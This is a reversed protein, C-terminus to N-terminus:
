GIYAKVNGSFSPRYGQNAATTLSIVLEGKDDLTAVQLTGVTTDKDYGTGIRLGTFGTLDGVIDGCKLTYDDAINTSGSGRKIHMVFTVKGCAAGAEGLKFRWTYTTAHGLKGSDIGTVDDAQLLDMEGYIAGCARCVYKKGTKETSNTFDTAAYDHDAFPLEVEREYGCISCKEHKIGHVSCTSVTDTKSTDAIWTHEAEDAKYGPIPCNADSCEHWHSNDDASWADAVQHEHKMDKIVFVIHSLGMNYSGKREYKFTNVGNKLVINNGCEIDALPSLYNEIDDKDAGKKGTQPDGTMYEAYTHTKYASLNLKSGNLTLECDDAGTGDAKGSSFLKMTHATNTTDLYWNDVVGRQYIKGVAINNDGSCAYNFSFSFSQGNSNLKMYGYPDNKNASGSALMSDEVKVEVKIADCKKCTFKNYAVNDGAAEVPTAENWDHAAPIAVVKEYKCVSCVYKGEGDADCTAPNVVQLDGFSHDAEDLKIGPEDCDEGVCTHWHKTENTEWTTSAQHQHTPVTGGIEGTAGLNVFLYGQLTVRYGLKGQRVYILNEGAALNFKGLPMYKVESGDGFVSSMLNNYAVPKFDGDGVKTYYRNADSNPNDGNTDSSTYDGENWFHRARANSYKAGISIFANELASAVNVKFLLAVGQDLKYTDAAAKNTNNGITWKETEGEVATTAFVGSNEKMPVAAVKAAGNNYTFQSVKKNDSNLKIVESTADIDFPLTNVDREEKEGCACVREESGFETYTASDKPTWDSFEHTHDGQSTEGGGQSTEGGGQSTEGGGGQSGSSPDSSPAPKNGGGCATIGM